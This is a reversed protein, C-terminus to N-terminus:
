YTGTFELATDLGIVKAQVHTNLEDNPGCEDMRKALIMLQEAKDRLYDGITEAGPEFDKSVNISIRCDNPGSM